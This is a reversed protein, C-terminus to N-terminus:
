NKGHQHKTSWIIDKQYNKKNFHREKSNRRSPLEKADEFKEQSRFYVIDGGLFTSFTHIFVFNNIGRHVVMNSNLTRNVNPKESQVTYHVRKYPPNKELCFRKYHLLICEPEGLAGYPAHQYRPIIM